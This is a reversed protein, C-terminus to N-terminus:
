NLELLEESFNSFIQRMKKAYKGALILYFEDCEAEPDIYDRVFYVDPPLREKVKKEIDIFDIEKSINSYTKSVLKM